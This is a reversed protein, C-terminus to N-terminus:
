AIMDILVGSMRDHTVIVKANAEYARQTAIMGTFEAAPDTNSGEVYGPILAARGDVDASVLGPVLPGPTTSRQIAGVQVGVNGPGSSLILDSSRFGNTNSNAINNARVMMDVGFANLASAATSGIGNM